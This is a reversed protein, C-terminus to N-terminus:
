SRGYVPIAAGSIDRAADSLLFQIVGALSERAVWKSPDANPMGARNGPTDIMSPLVANVRVGHSLVEAAVAQALTVVAAKSAAYAAAGAGEWPREFPKAGVVVIAGTGREVMGPLVARLSRQMTDFNIQLMRDIKEAPTEHFPQGGSWGGAIFAAGDVPGVEGWAEVDGVDFRRTELERGQLQSQLEELGDQAQERDVAVVKAGAATLLGCLTSGM